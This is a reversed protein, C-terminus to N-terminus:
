QGVLAGASWGPVCCFTHSKGHRRHITWHEVRCCGSCIVHLISMSYTSVVFRCHHTFVTASQTPLHLVDHPLTGPNPPEAFEFAPTLANLRCCAISLWNQIRQPCVVGLVPMGRSETLVPVGWCAARLQTQLAHPCPWFFSCSNGVARQAAIGADPADAPRQQSSAPQQVYGM